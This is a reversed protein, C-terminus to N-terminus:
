ALATNDGGGAQAAQNAFFVRTFIYFGPVIDAHSKIGWGTAGREGSALAHGLARVGLHGLRQGAQGRRVLGQQHKVVGGAGLDVV